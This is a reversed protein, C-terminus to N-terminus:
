LDSDIAAANEGARDSTLCALSKCQKMVPQALTTCGNEWQKVRTFAAGLSPPRKQIPLNERCLKSVGTAEKSPQVVFLM